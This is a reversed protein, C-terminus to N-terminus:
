NLPAHECSKKNVSASTCTPIQEHQFIIKWVCIDKCEVPCNLKLFSVDSNHSLCPMACICLLSATLISQSDDVLYHNHIVFPKVHFNLSGSWVVLSIATINSITMWQQNSYFSCVTGTWPSSSYPGCM